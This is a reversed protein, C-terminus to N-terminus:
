RTRRGRPGKLSDLYAQLPGIEDQDITRNENKDFEAFLRQRHPRPVENWQLLGDGNEDYTEWNLRKQMESALARAASETLHRRQAERLKHVEDRHRPVVTLTVSGMEDDSERGWKIRKPPSNPNEPNDKSNDYVLRTKLVTGAPLDLPKDFYYRDQWDLDWDDIAMLPVVKGDPLTATMSMERCIYHAHGGVVIGEVDIPLKFSDEVVFDSEGAPIDIGATRGFVPPIQISALEKAPAKDAFYLALEAQEVEAKGSPHFHTQMVVDSGRPLFMALDGPLMAPTAGPVHGGLGGSGSFAASSPDEGPRTNGRLFGMGNMGAKGDRGDQRRAEGTTDIFFLAHHVSTRARPRLEVAKVWKDEPLQLPFVFSRYIDRGSAPVDFQGNMTVVLDPEGLYWGSPYDPRRPKRNAPGEPCDAEVWKTFLAIEEDSLRRDNAYHLNTNVPKWPPMYRDLLVEEITGSRKKVDRYTILSFPGSQEPRHCGSCNQHILPAIHENFTVEAAGASPGFALFPPGALLTPLLRKM